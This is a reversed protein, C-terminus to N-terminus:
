SRIAPTWSRIRSAPPATWAPKGPLCRRLLELLPGHLIDIHGEGAAPVEGAHFAAEVKDALLAPRQGQQHGHRPVRMRRHQLDLNSSAENFGLLVMLAFLCM